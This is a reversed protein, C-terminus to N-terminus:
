NALIRKLDQRRSPDRLCPQQAGGYTSYLAPGGAHLRVVALWFPSGTCDCDVETMREKVM